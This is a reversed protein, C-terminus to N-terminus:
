VPGCVGVGEDEYLSDVWIRVSRRASAHAPPLGVARIDTSAHTDPGSLASDSCQQLSPLTVFVCMLLFSPPVVLSSKPWKTAEDSSRLRHRLEKTAKSYACLCLRTHAHAPLHARYTHLM